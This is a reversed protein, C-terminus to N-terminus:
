RWDMSHIKDMNKIDDGKITADDSLLAIPVNKREDESLFVNQIRDALMLKLNCLSVGWVVYEYTWGYRECAVDILSGYVSKGGFDFDSKHKEAKAKSEIVRRMRENEKTIGLHAKYAETDERTLVHLLLAALEDDETNQSIYVARRKMEWADLAEEKTRATYIAVIRCVDERHASILRLIEVSPNASLNDFNIEITEYIRKIMYVKGLTAPYLFLHMEGQGDKSTVTFPMARELLADEIDIDLRKDSM